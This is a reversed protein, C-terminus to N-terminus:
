KGEPIKDNESYDRMSKLEVNLDTTKQTAPKLSTEVKQSLIPAENAPKVDKDEMKECSVKM